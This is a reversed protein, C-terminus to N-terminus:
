PQFTYKMTDVVLRSFLVILEGDYLSISQMLEKAGKWFELWNRHHKDQKM